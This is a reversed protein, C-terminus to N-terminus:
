KGINVLRIGEENQIFSLVKQLNEMKQVQIRPKSNYKGPNKHSLVEMLQHLKIGDSLETSVDNISSGRMKLKQDVWKTFTKTQMQAWDEKSAGKLAM